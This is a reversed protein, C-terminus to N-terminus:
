RDEDDLTPTDSTSSIARHDTGSLQAHTRSFNMRNPPRSRRFYSLAAIVLVMGLVTAPTTAGKLIAVVITALIGLFLGGSIVLTRDEQKMSWREVVRNHDMQMRFEEVIGAGSGPITEEYQKLDDPTPLPGSEHKYAAAYSRSGVATAKSSINSPNSPAASGPHAEHIAEGESRDIAVSQPKKPHTRHSM